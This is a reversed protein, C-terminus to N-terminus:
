AAAADSLLSRKAAELVAVAADLSVSPFDKRFDDLSSASELYDFLTQIPVRTGTFCPTGGMIELNRSIYRNMM